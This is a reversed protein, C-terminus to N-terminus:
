LNGERHDRELEAITAEKERRDINEQKNYEKTLDVKEWFGYDVNWVTKVKKMSEYPKIIKLLREICEETGEIDGLQGCIDEIEGVSNEDILVMNRQQLYESFNEEDIKVPIFVGEKM